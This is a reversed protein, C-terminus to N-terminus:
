RQAAAARSRGARWRDGIRVGVWLWLPYTVFLAIAVSHTGWGVDEYALHFVGSNLMWDRGNEAGCLEAIWASWGLNLYLSVSTSLFAALTAAVLANRARGAGTLRAILVGIAVLWPPDILFSDYPIM